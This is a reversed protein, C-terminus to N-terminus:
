NPNLTKTASIPEIFPSYFSQKSYKDSKYKVRFDEVQKILWAMELM